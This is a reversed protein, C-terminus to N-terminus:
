NVTYVFRKGEPGTPIRKLEPDEQGSKNLWLSVATGKIDLAEAIERPKFAKEPNSRLLNKISEGLKGRPIRSSTRPTSGGQNMFKPIRAELQRYIANLEDKLPQMKAACEQEMQAVEAQLRKKENVMQQIDGLQDFFLDFKDM